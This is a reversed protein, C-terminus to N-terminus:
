RLAPVALSCFLAMGCGLSCLRHRVRHTAASERRVIALFGAGALVGGIGLACSLPPISAMALPAAALPGLVLASGRFGWTGLVAGTTRVGGRADEDVDSLEHLLQNQMLLVVFVYELVSVPRSVALDTALIPLPAFIAVNALTGIFPLRKLRPPASYVFGAFLSCAALGLAAFGLLSAVGLAVVASAVLLTTVERPVSAAGALANKSVARDLGRDTVGNIGYAFALCGTAVVVAALCVALDLVFPERAQVAAAFPLM